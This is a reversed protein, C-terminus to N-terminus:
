DPSLLEGEADREVNLCSKQKVRNIEQVLKVNFSM